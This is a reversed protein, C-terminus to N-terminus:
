GVELDPHGLDTNESRPSCLSQRAKMVDKSKWFADLRIHTEVGCGLGADDDAVTGLLVADSGCVRGGATGGCRGCVAEDATRAVLGLRGDAGGAACEWLVGALFVRLTDYRAPATRRDCTTRIGSRGTVGHGSDDNAQACGSEKAADIGVGAAGCFGSHGGPEGGFIASSPSLETHAAGDLVDGGMDVGGDDRM